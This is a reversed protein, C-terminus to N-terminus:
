LVSSNSSFTNGQGCVTRPSSTSAAESQSHSNNQEFVRTWTLLVLIMYGTLVQQDSWLSLEWWLMWFQACFFVWWRQAAAAAAADDKSSDPYGLNVQTTSKYDPPSKEPLWGAMQFERARGLFVCTLTILLWFKVRSIQWSNKKTNSIIVFKENFNLFRKNM